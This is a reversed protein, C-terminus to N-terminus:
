SLSEWRQSINNIQPSATKQPKRRSMYYFYIGIVVMVVTLLGLGIGIWDWTSLTPESYDEDFIDDEAYSYDIEGYSTFLLIDSRNLSPTSQNGRDPIKMNLLYNIVFLTSNLPIYASGEPTSICESRSLHQCFSISTEIIQTPTSSTQNLFTNPLTMGLFDAGFYVDRSQDVSNFYIQTSMNQYSSDVILEQSSCLQRLADYGWGIASGGLTTLRVSGSQLLPTGVSYQYVWYYLSSYQVSYTRYRGNTIVKTTEEVKSRQPSSGFSFYVKM